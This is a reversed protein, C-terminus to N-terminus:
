ARLSHLVVYQKRFEYGAGSWTKVYERLAAAGPEWDASEDRSREGNAFALGCQTAVGRIPKQHFRGASKQM